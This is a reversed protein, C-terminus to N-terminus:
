GFEVLHLPTEPGRDVLRALAGSARVPTFAVFGALADDVDRRVFVAGPFCPPHFAGAEAGVAHPVPLGDRRDSHAAGGVALAACAFAGPFGVEFGGLGRGSRKGM